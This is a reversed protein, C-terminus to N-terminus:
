KKIILNKIKFIFIIKFIKIQFFIFFLYIFLNIGRHVYLIM